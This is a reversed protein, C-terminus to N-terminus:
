HTQADSPTENEAAKQLKHQWLNDIHESLSAQATLLQGFDLRLVADIFDTMAKERNILM